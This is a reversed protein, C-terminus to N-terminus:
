SIGGSNFVDPCRIFGDKSVLCGSILEDETNLFLDGDTILPEILAILNRSYLASAHNPISCPLESAGILKM